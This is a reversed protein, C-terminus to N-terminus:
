FFGNLGGPGLGGRVGHAARTEEVRGVGRARVDLHGPSLDADLAFPSPKNVNSSQIFFCFAKM